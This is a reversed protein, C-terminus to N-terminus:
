GVLGRGRWALAVGLGRGLWAWAVGLGRGRWAWAVGVGLGRGRWAWAVGLGRGRWAWAVCAWAVGVGRGLWAWSLLRACAQACRKKKLLFGWLLSNPSCYTSPHMEPVLLNGDHSPPVISYSGCTMWTITLSRPSQNMNGRVDRILNLSKHELKCVWHSEKIRIIVKEAHSESWFGGFPWIKM